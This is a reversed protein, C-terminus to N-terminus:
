TAAGQQAAAARKRDALTSHLSGFRDYESFPYGVIQTYHFQRGAGTKTNTGFVHCEHYGTKSFGGVKVELPAQGIFVTVVTGVPVAKAIEAAWADRAAQIAKHANVVPNM